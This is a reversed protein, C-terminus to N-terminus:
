CPEHLFSKKGAGFESKVQGHGSLIYKYTLLGELGVPGRAHTKNTSIGVEAGLGFVFGDSFRTSANHFVCASDVGGIFKEARNQDTTLISDTHHSGYCNIHEIADELSDVIKISLILDLYEESWDEESATIFSINNKQLIEGSKQCARISINNELLKPGLELLLSDASSPHILLTELANCASPYDTKADIIIKSATDKDYEEDVYIHCIGSSHGIM